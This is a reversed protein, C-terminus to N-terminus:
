GLPGSNQINPNTPNPKPYPNPKCNPNTPRHNTPNSNHIPKPDRFRDM